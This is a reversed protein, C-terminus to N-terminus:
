KFHMLPTPADTYVKVGAPIDVTRQFMWEARTLEETALHASKKSTQSIEIAEYFLNMHVNLWQWVKEPKM